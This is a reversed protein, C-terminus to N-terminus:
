LITFPANQTARHICIRPVNSHGPLLDPQMVILMEYHQPLTVSEIIIFPCARVAETPDAFIELGSPALSSVQHCEGTIPTKDHFLNIEHPSTESVIIFM